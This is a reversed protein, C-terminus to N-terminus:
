LLNKMDTDFYLDVLVWPPNPTPGALGSAPLPKRYFMFTWVVPYNEYMLVYRVLAINSGIRKTTELKEWTFINGFQTQLDDVRSRFANSQTISESTGLPSGSLLQEFASSSNGRKLSEFFLRIRPEFEDVNADTVTSLQAGVPLLRLFPLLLLFCFLVAGMGFLNKHLHKYQREMQNKRKQQIPTGTLATGLM